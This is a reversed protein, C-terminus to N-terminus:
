AIRRFIYVSLHIVRGGFSLTRKCHVCAGAHRQPGLKGTRIGTDNACQSRLYVERVKPSGKQLQGFDDCWRDHERFRTVLMHHHRKTPVHLRIFVMRHSPKSENQSESLVWHTCPLPPQQHHSQYDLRLQLFIVVVVRVRRTSCRVTM